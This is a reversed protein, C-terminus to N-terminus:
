LIRLHLTHLHSSTRVTPKFAQLIKLKRIWLLCVTVALVAERHVHWDNTPLLHQLSHTQDYSSAFVLSSICLV